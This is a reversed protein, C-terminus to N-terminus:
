LLSIFLRSILGHSTIKRHIFPRISPELRTTDVKKLSDSLIILIFRNLSEGNLLRKIFLNSLVSESLLLKINCEIVSIEFFVDDLSNDEAVGVLHVVDCEVNGFWNFSVLDVVTVLSVGLDSEVLVRKSLELKVHV